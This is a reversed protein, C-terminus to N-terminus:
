MIDTFFKNLKQTGTTEPVQQTAMQEQSDFYLQLVKESIVNLIDLRYGVYEYMVQGDQYVFKTIDNHDTFGITTNDTKMPKYTYVVNNTYIHTVSFDYPSSTNKLVKYEKVYKNNSNTIHRKINHWIWFNNAGITHLLQLM